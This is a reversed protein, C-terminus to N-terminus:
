TTGNTNEKSCAKEHKEIRIPQSIELDDLEPEKKSLLEKKM